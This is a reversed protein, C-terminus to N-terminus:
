VGVNSDMHSCLDFHWIWCKSNFHFCECWCLISFLHLWHHGLPWFRHLLFSGKWYCWWVLCCCFSFVFCCFLFSLSSLFFFHHLGLGLYYIYWLIVYLFWKWSWYRGYIMLTSLLLSLLLPLFPFVHFPHAINNRPISTACCTICCLHFHFSLSVLFCLFFHEM